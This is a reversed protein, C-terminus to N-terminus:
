WLGVTKGIEHLVGVVGTGVGIGAIWAERTGLRIMNRTVIESGDWYLTRKEKHVGLRGIGDFNIPEVENPWGSTDKTLPEM